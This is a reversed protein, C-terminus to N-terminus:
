GDGEPKFGSNRPKEWSTWYIKRGTESQRSSALQLAVGSPRLSRTSFALNSPGQYASASVSEEAQHGLLTLVEPNLYFISFM